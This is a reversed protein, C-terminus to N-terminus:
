IMMSFSKFRVEAVYEGDGGDVDGDTGYGDGEFSFPAELEINGLALSTFMMSLVKFLIAPSEFTSTLEAEGIAVVTL